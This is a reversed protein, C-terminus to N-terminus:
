TRKTVVISRVENCGACFGKAHNRGFGRTRVGGASWLDKGRGCTACAVQWEQTERKMRDFRPGSVTAKLMRQFWSHTDPESSNEEAM